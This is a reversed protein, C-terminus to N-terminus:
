SKLSTSIYKTWQYTESVNAEHLCICNLLMTGKLGRCKLSFFTIMTPQSANASFIQIHVDYTTATKNKEKKKNLLLFPSLKERSISWALINRKFCVFLRTRKTPPKVHLNMQCQAGIYQPSPSTHHPMLLPSANDMPQVRNSHKEIRQMLTTCTHLILACIFFGM